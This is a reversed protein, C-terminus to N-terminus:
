LESALLSFLVGDVRGAPILMAERVVCERTFGAREAVRQSAHNDTAAVLEIRHMGKEFAYAAVGRTAEVAYGKRRAWPAIWYGVEVRGDTWDTRGLGISGVFRDGGVVAFNVARAPDPHAHTTCWDIATQRTQVSAWPMWRLIEPDRSAALVDEADDEEFPRMLLRETELLVGEDFSMRM